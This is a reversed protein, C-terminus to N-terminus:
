NCNLFAALRKAYEEPHTRLTDAHGAGEVTWLEKRGQIKAAHLSRAMWYPVTKDKTGHIFMVPITSQSVPAIPKVMAPVWILRVANVLGFGFAGVMGPMKMGYMAHVIQSHLTSYGCDDVVETINEKKACLMATAAGMSVGHLVLHKKSAEPFLEMAKAAWLMCDEKEQFGMQTADGESDGHHEWNPILVDFGLHEMYMRAYPMMQLACGNHGHLLLVVGNSDSKPASHYATVKHNDKNTLSLKQFDQSSIWESIGPFKGEVKGLYAEEDKGLPDKFMMKREAFFGIVIGIALYVGLVVLVIIVTSNM